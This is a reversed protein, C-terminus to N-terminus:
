NQSSSPTTSLTMVGLGIAIANLNLMEGLNRSTVINQVTPDPIGDIPIGLTRLKEHVTGIATHVADISDAGTCVIKGSRFMLTTAKPDRM